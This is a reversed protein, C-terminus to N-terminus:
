KSPWVNVIGLECGDASVRTTIVVATREGDAQVSLGSKYAPAPEFTTLKAAKNAHLSESPTIASISPEWIENPSDTLVQAWSQELRQLHASLPVLLALVRELGESGANM